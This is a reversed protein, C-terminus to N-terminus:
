RDNVVSVNLEASWGNDTDTIRVAAQCKLITARVLPNLSEDSLLYDGHRAVVAIMNGVETGTFTTREM